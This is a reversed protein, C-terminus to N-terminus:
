CNYVWGDTENLARQVQSVLMVSFNFSQTLSSNKVGHFKMFCYYVIVLLYMFFIHAVILLGVLSCQQHRFLVLTDVRLSSM